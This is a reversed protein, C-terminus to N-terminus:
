ETNMVSNCEGGATGHPCCVLQSSLILHLSNFMESKPGNGGGASCSDIKARRAKISYTIAYLINRQKQESMSSAESSLEYETM